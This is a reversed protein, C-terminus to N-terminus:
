CNYVCLVQDPLCNARRQCRGEADWGMRPMIQFTSEHAKHMLRVRRKPVYHKPGSMVNLANSILYVEPCRIM